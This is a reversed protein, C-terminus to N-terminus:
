SCRYVISFAYINLQLYKTCLLFFKFLYQLALYFTFNGNLDNRICPAPSTHNVLKQSWQAYLTITHDACHGAEKVKGLKRWTGMLAPNVSPCGGPGPFFGSTEVQIQVQSWETWLGLAMGCKASGFIHLICIYISWYLYQLYKM